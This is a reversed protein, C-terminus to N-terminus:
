LIAFKLSKRILVEANQAAAPDENIVKKIAKEAITTSYGLTVLAAMAEQKVLNMTLGSEQSTVEGLKMIKDKLELNLREATKKGIGPLKTLASINGAIIYEQLEQVSLSSLIGLAIKPGIGSISTIMKFAERETEDVFGFLLLADERPILLTFIKVQEGIDPMSGSTNVSVMALYGVGNCDIVLETSHKSILKGRLQSIM